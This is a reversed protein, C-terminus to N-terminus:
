VEFVVNFRENHCCWDQVFCCGSIFGAEEWCLVLVLASCYRCTVRCCSCTCHRCTVRCCSSSVMVSYVERGLMNYDVSVVGIVGVTTVVLVIIAAFSKTEGLRKRSWVLTIALSTGSEACTAAAITRPSKTISKNRYPWAAIQSGAVLYPCM